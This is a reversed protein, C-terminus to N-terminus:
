KKGYKTIIKSCKIKLQNLLTTGRESVCEVSNCYEAIESCDALMTNIADAFIGSKFSSMFKLQQACFDVIEMKESIIDFTVRNQTNTQTM